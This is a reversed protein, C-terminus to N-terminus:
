CNDNGFMNSGFMYHFYSEVDYDFLVKNEYEAMYRGDYTIGNYTEIVKDKEVICYNKNLWELFEKTGEVCMDFQEKWAEENLDPDHKSVDLLNHAYAETIQKIQGITM